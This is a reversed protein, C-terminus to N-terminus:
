RRAAGATRAPPADAAEAMWRQLRGATRWLAAQLAESGAEAHAGGTLRDAIRTLTAAPIRVTNDGSAQMRSALDKQDEALEGVLQAQGPQPGHRYAQVLAGLCSVAQHATSKPIVITQGLAPGPTM